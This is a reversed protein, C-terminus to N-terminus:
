LGFYAGGGDHKPCSAGSPPAGTQNGPSGRGLPQDGPQGLHQASVFAHSGDNRGKSSPLLETNTYDRSVRLTSWSPLYKRKVALNNTHSKQGAAKRQSPGDRRGIHSCLMNNLSQKEIGAPGLVSTQIFPWAIRRKPPPHPM